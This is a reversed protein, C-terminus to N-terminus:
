SMSSGNRQKIRAGLAMLREEMWEVTGWGCAASRVVQKMADIAGPDLGDTDIVHSIVWDRVRDINRVTQKISEDMLSEVQSTLEVM